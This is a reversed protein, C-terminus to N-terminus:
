YPPTARREVVLCADCLPPRLGIVVHGCEPSRSPRFARHMFLLIQFPRGTAIEDIVQSLRVFVSMEVVKGLRASDGHTCSSM